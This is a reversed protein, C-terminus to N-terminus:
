KMFYNWAISREVQFTSNWQENQKSVDCNRNRQTFCGVARSCACSPMQTSRWQVAQMCDHRSTRRITRSVMALPTSHLVDFLCWGHGTSLSRNLSPQRDRNLDIRDKNQTFIRQAAHNLCYATTAHVSILDSGGTREIAESFESRIDTWRYGGLTLHRFRREATLNNNTYLIIFLFAKRKCSITATIKKKKKLSTQHIYNNAM